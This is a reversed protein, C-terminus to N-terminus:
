GVADDILEHNKRRRKRKADGSEAAAPEASLGALAAQLAQGAAELRWYCLLFDRTHCGVLCLSVVMVVVGFAVVAKVKNKSMPNPLFSVSLVPLRSRSKPSAASAPLPRLVRLRSSKENSKRVAGDNGVKLAFRCVDSVQARAPKNEPKRAIPPPISCSMPGEASDKKEGEGKGEIERAM